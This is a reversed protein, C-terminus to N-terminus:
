IKSPGLFLEVFWDISFCYSLNLICMRFFKFIYALFFFNFIKSNWFIHWISIKKFDKIKLLIKEPFDTERIPWNKQYECYFRLPTSARARWFEKDRSCLNQSHARAGARSFVGWLLDRVPKTLLSIVM